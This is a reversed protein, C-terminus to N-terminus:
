QALNITNEDGPAWFPIKGGWFGLIRWKLHNEHFHGLIPTFQHFPTSNLPIGGFRGRMIVLITCYYMSNGAVPEALVM